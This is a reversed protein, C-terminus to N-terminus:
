ARQQSIWRRLLAEDGIITKRSISRIFPLHRHQFLWRRTKGTRAVLDDITLSWEPVVSNSNNTATDDEIELRAAIGAATTTLQQIATRRATACMGDLAGIDELVDRATIHVGAKRCMHTRAAKALADCARCVSGDRHQLPLKM